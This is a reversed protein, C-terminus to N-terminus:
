SKPCYSCLLQYMRARIIQLTYYLDLQGKYLHINGLLQEDYINKLYGPDVPISSAKAVELEFEQLTKIIYNEHSLYFVGDENRSVEIGLYLIIYELKTIEM